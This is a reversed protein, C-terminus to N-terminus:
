PKSLSFPPPRAVIGDVARRWDTSARAQLRQFAADDPPKGNPFPPKSIESRPFERALSHRKLLRQSAYTLAEGAGYIGGHDPALLGYRDALSAAVALGSAGATAALGATIWQRRSFNNM